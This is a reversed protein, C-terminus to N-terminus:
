GPVFRHITWSEPVGKLEVTRADAFALGSGLTAQRAAESVMIEGPGGQAMVRAAINVALGSVDGDAREDIDGVHVGARIALGDDTLRREIDYAAQLASGVSPLVALVGDGTTKVVRGAQGAVSRRITGDHADLLDRWRRDGEDAARETSSVLDTFLVAAVARDPAPLRVEGTLFVAVEAVIADVDGAIPFIDGGPLSVMESGPIDRHVEDISSEPVMCDRNHIILTPTTIGPPTLSGSQFIHQWLRGASAPSAGLRGAKTIWDQFAREDIRSPFSRATVVDDITELIESPEELLPGLDEPTSLPNILVQRAFRDPQGATAARAIGYIDWSVVTPHDLGAADVVSLLDEAWQEAAPRSWDTFPDSAGVGRKDFVVLRGLAALGDMFRAMVRDERLIECPFFVGSVMVIDAPGSGAVVQYAIHTDGAKAYAIDEM